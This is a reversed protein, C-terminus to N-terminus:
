GLYPAVLEESVQWLRRATELDYAAPSAPEPQRKYFYQGSIGKVKPSTALYISTVAGEEPSLAFLGAIKMGLRVILNNNLAFNSAVFGPHLANATVGSGELRRALEFTFLINALKSQGYVSFGAYKKTNMLDNFNLMRRVHAGSSVNVIRAEGQSAATTKIRELLLNTLLFHSLHNVAFTQEYGQASVLRSFNVVGANNVLVDLRDYKELFLHAAQQVQKLDSLDAVLYDSVQGTEKQIKQQTEQLRELSRGLIVVRAGVYALARATVQGIGATGGTILAVQDRMDIDPM